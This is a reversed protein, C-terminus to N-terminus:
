IYVKSPPENSPRLTDDLCRVREMETHARTDSLIESTLNNVDDQSIKQLYVDKRGLM